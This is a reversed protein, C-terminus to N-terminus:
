RRLLWLVLLIAAPIYWYQKLWEIMENLTTSTQVCMSRDLANAIAQVGACQACHENRYVKQDTGIVPDCPASKCLACHDEGHVIGGAGNPLPTIGQQLTDISM